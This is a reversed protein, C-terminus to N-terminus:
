RFIGGSVMAPLNLRALKGYTGVLVSLTDVDEILAGLGAAFLL